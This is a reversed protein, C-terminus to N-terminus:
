KTKILTKEKSKKMYIPILECTFGANVFSWMEIVDLPNSMIVIFKSKDDRWFMDRFNSYFFQAFVAVSNIDKYREYYNYFKKFMYSTNIFIVPKDSDFYEKWELPITLDENKCDCVTYDFNFNPIYKDDDKIVLLKM